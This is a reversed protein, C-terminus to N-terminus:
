KYVGVVITNDPVNRLVIAGAGIFCNDGITLDGLIIAGAGIEVNKGITAHGNEQRKQGITVNQRITCNEGIVTGGRIVIGFPHIFKTSRPISSIPVDCFIAVGVPFRRVICLLFNYSINVFHIQQLAKKINIIIRRKKM